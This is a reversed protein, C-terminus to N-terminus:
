RAVKAPKKKTTKKASKGVDIGNRYSELVKEGVLRITADDDGEALLKKLEKDIDRVLEKRRRTFLTALTCM